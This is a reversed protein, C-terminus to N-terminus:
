AGHTQVEGIERAATAIASDIADIPQELV